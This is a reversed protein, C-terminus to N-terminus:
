MVVCKDDADKVNAAGQVRGNSPGAAAYGPAASGGGQAPLAGFGSGGMGSERRRVRNASVRRGHMPMGGPMMSSQQTYASQNQLADLTNLPNGQSSPASAGAPRYPRDTRSQEYTPPADPDENATPRSVAPRGSPRVVQSSTRRRGSGRRPPVAPPTEESSLYRESLEQERRRREDAQRQQDEEEEQLQLAL